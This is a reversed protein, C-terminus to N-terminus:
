VAAIDFNLKVCRLIMNVIDYHCFAKLCFHTVYFLLMSSQLSLQLVKLSFKFVNSSLYATFLCVLFRM